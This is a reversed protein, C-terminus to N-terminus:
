KEPDCESKTVGIEINELEMLEMEPIELLEAEKIELLKM